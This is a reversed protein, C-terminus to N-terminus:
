LEAPTYYDLRFVMGFRDRLPGSLLGTRTTAGILTFRPLDLTINRAAPGKGIIIDLKYDEMASYLIEEVSRNLRHIEDIFLVDGESLNTLIAALDGSREVAPGSTTKINTGLENSIVTALTTKGLGPPGALLLHDLPEGRKQTASILVQLNAKVREQGLYEALRQPRLTTELEVDETDLEQDVLRTTQSFEDPAEWKMTVM